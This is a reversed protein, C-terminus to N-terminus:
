EGPIFDWEALLDRHVLKGLLDVDSKFYEKLAKETEPTLVLAQAASEVSELAVVKEVLKGHVWKYLGKIGSKIAKIGRTIKGQRKVEDEDIPVLHTLTIPIFEKNVELHQYVKMITKLPEERVESAMVVMLDKGSYLSFYTSLARGYKASVLAATHDHLFQELTTTPTIIGARQSEIYSVRVSVLPNEIVVLLKAQPYTRAIMEAAAPHHLYDLSLEGCVQKGAKGAYVSEYAEIGLARVKEDIFFNAPQNPVFIGPHAKVYSYLLPAATHAGIGIFSLTIRQHQM